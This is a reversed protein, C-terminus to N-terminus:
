VRAQECDSSRQWFSVSLLPHHLFEGFQAHASENRQCGSATHGFGSGTSLGPEFPADDLGALLTTAVRQHFNGGPVREVLQKCCDGSAGVAQDCM